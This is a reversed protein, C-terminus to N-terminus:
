SRDSSCWHLLNILWSRSHINVTIVTCNATFTTRTVDVTRYVLSAALFNRSCRRATYITFKASSNAIMIKIIM